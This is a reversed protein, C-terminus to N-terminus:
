LVTNDTQKTSALTSQPETQVTTGGWEVVTFGQRAPATLTQPEINVQTDSPYWAMFVRIMTDPQPTINLKANSTYADTQFSIINYPNNEMQELWFVIFENAENRKLGLKNLSEELFEATNEGKVCFGKSFDYKTNLKGEWFLYNYTQKEDTLTGNPQATVTWENIYKPYTCLLNGNIDLKVTVKTEKEPYLYIIPKLVISEDDPYANKIEILDAEIRNTSTDMYVNTLKCRVEDRICWENGLHGNIKIIYPSSPNVTNAYFCDNQIETIVLIDIFSTDQCINEPKKEIWVNSNSSPQAIRQGITFPNCATCTLIIVLLLCASIIKKIM